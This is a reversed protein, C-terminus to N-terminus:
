LSQLESTHEESRSNKAEEDLENKRFLSLDNSDNVIQTLLDPLDKFLSILNERTAMVEDGNQLVIVPKWEPEDDTGVNTEFRRIISDLYVKAVLERQLKDSIGGPIKSAQRHPRM